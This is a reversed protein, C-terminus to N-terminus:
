ASAVAATRQRVIRVPGLLGARTQGEFVAPTPSAHDLYGALTNRVTVLIEIPADAPRGSRALVDTIDLRYPSWALAGAPIGDIAVSVSGRVTGLDLSIREGAATSPRESTARYVVEGALASLGIATWDALEACVAVTEVQVAGELVAGARRGDGPVFTLVMREGATAPHDLAVRDAVPDYRREGVRAEFPLETPVRVAIAGIPLVFSLHQPLRDAVSREPVVDIVTRDDYRSSELWAARPLPHPKAELSVFRPDQWQQTRRRIATPVGNRSATWHGTGTMVGLGGLSEPMSDVLVAPRRVGELTRLVVTNDGIRLLRALDYPHLRGFRRDAYPDFDSQRGIEEGNVFVTCPQESGVLIRSDAPISDISWELSVEVTARDDSKTVPELWEPRRFTEVDRVLAFAARVTEDREARLWIQVAHPGPAIPATRLYGEGETEVRDGDILLVAAANAGVTLTVDAEPVTLTTRVAVWQGAVVEPWILFEEPVYGKPGLSDGHVPDQEIGRSLSWGTEKWQVAGVAWPAVDATTLPGTSDAFPGFTATVPETRGADGVRHDFQWVEIPLIGTRSAAAFDGHANDLLSRAELSWGTVPHQASVAGLASRDPLPLEAGIVIISVTGDDFPARFTLTSGNAQPHLASRGGSRPDWQQVSVPATGLGHVRVSAVRDTVPRFEYGHETIEQWYADWTTEIWEIGSGGGKVIPQATGSIDDHAFLALVWSDGVKRLLHPVDTEVWVEHHGLLPVVEAAEAVTAITGTAVLARFEEAEAASGGIFQDPVAGVLIVTGGAAAFRALLVGVEGRLMRAAPVIVNRFTETGVRLLSGDITASALTAEDYVDYDHGSVDLIGPREAYWAPTGNLQQYLRGVETADELAGDITVNAQVTSTPFVLVTDAVHTGTTFLESLRSVAGSLIGYESWYPQRWCTSPPAWEWWGGATSYYVAHPNYLTAGRRLFPALWDYTEELTGGWGSSHFAELWTRPKGGAHALSSHIKSDGWHDSGPAGYDAHLQLYDGYLRTAGAPDGERAPSQQDFGCILGESDFWEGLPTFTARDALRARHENFQRRLTSEAPRGWLNPLPDDWLAGLWQRPDYGYEATFTSRFQTSWTPMAPLEDQFFGVIVSRFWQGARRRFEGHVTDILAASAEPNFYDFGRTQAYVLTLTGESADTTATDGVIPAVTATAGDPSVVYAVIPQSGFPAALSRASGEGLASQVRGLSQGAWEPHETILKGQLNAGSFGIQDYPWFKFGLEDADQCLGLFLEWWAESMFPPDDALSGYLPGTPALNLIVAQSVGQSVLQEMQWCLRERTLKAGSWWWIPVPGFRSADPEAFRAALTAAEASPTGPAPTVNHM